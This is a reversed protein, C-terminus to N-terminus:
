LKPVISPATCREHGNFVNQEDRRDRLVLALNLPANLVEVSLENIMWALKQM